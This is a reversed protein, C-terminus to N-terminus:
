KCAPWCDDRDVRFGCPGVDTTEHIGAEVVEWRVSVDSELLWVRGCSSLLSPVLADRMMGPLSFAGYSRRMKDFGFIM